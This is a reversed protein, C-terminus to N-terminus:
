LQRLATHTQTSTRSNYHSDSLAFCHRSLSQGCFWSCHRLLFCIIRYIRSALRGAAWAWGVVFLLAAKQFGVRAVAERKKRIQQQRKGDGTPPQDWRGGQSEDAGRLSPGHTREVGLPSIEVVCWVCCFTGALHPAAVPACTCRQAPAVVTVWMLASSALGSLSGQMRHREWASM